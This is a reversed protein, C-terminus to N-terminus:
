KSVSDKLSVSICQKQRGLAPTLTTSWWAQSAKHGEFTSPMLCVLPASMYPSMVCLCLLFMTIIFFIPLVKIRISCVSPFYMFSKELFEPAYSVVFFSHKFYFPSFSDFLISLHTVPSFPFLFLLYSSIM